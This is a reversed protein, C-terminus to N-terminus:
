CPLKFPIDQLSPFKIHYGESVYATRLIFVMKTSLKLWMKYSVSPRLSLSMPCQRPSRCTRCM